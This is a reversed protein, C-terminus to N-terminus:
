SQIFLDFNFDTTEPEIEEAGYRNLLDLIEELVEEGTQKVLSSTLFWPTVGQTNPINPNAGRDLLLQVMDVNRNHIAMDLATQGYVDQINVNVGYV